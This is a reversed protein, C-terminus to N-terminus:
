MLRAANQLEEIATEVHCCADHIVDPDYDADQLTQWLEELIEHARNLEDLYPTNRGAM